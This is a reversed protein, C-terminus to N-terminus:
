SLHLRGPHFSVNSDICEAVAAHSGPTTAKRCLAFFFYLRLWALFPLVFAPCKNRKKECGKTVAGMSLAMSARCDRQERKGQM